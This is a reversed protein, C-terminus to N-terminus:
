RYRRLERDRQHEFKLREAIEEIRKLSDKLPNLGYWLTYNYNTHFAGNIAMARYKFFMDSLYTDLINDSRNMHLLNIRTEGNEAGKVLGEEYLNDVIRIAQAVLRDAQRITKTASALHADVHSTSHCHSCIKKMEFLKRNFEKESTEIMKNKEYILFQATPQRNKDYIGLAQFLTVRDDMWKSDNNDTRLALYGWATTIAHNGSPMHCTQCVPLSSKTKGEILWLTGHKSSAWTNWQQSDMGMHCSQCAHPNLAEKKSFSHRSHCSDCSGGSYRHQALEQQTKLGIKHCGSCEKLIEQVEKNDQIHPSPVSKIVEWALAHKSLKFQEVQKKHCTACIEPSPIGANRVDAIGQYHRKGHCVTCDIGVKGMKSARYQAVLQPTEKEHCSICSDEARAKNHFFISFFIKLIVFFVISYKM